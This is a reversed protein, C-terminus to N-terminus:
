RQDSGLAESLLRCSSRSIVVRYDGMPSVRQVNRTLTAARDGARATDGERAPEGDGTRGHTDPLSHFRTGTAAAGTRVALGAAGAGSPM